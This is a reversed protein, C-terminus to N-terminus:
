IIPQPWPSEGKPNPTPTLKDKLLFMDTLVQAAETGKHGQSGGARNLAQEENETTLVGFVVPCGYQLQLTSCGREVAACVYDYHTTEGRIVAGLAIVGECGSEILWKAALPIEYAGAVQVDVINKQIYGEDMLQALAGQRLKETVEFNFRATVVGIKKDALFNVKNNASM